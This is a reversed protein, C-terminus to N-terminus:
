SSFQAWSLSSTFLLMPDQILDQFLLLVNTSFSHFRSLTQSKILLLTSINNKKKAKAFTGYNLLTTINYLM